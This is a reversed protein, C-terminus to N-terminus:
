ANALLVNSEEKSKAIDEALRKQEGSIGSKFYVAAIIIGLILGVVGAILVFYFSVEPVNTSM